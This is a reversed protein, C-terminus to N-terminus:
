QSTLFKEDNFEIIKCQTPLIVQINVNVNFIILCSGQRGLLLFITFDFGPKRLIIAGCFSERLTTPVVTEALSFGKM